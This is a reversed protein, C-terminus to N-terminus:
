TDIIGTYEGLVPCSWSQRQFRRLEGVKTKLIRSVTNRHIGLEKAIQRKSKGDREHAKRVAEQLYVSKVQELWGEQAM